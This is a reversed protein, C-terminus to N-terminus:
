FEIVNEKILHEVVECLPLGVVNTYSGNIKKILFSGSGQIAYAGAKDSYENTGIYWEIEKDSLKKFCVNTKVIDTIAKNKNVCALTFGTLVTHEMNSLAKIMQVAQQRSDPKELINKDLYVITDAGLVWSDPYRQAIDMAKLESLKRVLEEPDDTKVSTEDVGSPIVDFSICAQGLLDKRRPSQSALILKEKNINKMNPNKDFNSSILLRISLNSDFINSYAQLFDLSIITLRSPRM